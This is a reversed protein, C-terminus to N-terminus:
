WIRIVRELKSVQINCIMSQPFFVFYRIKDYKWLLKQWTIKRLHFHNPQGAPNSGGTPTLFLLFVVTFIRRFGSSQKREMIGFWNIIKHTSDKLNNLEIFIISKNSVYYSVQSYFIKNMIDSLIYELLYYFLLLTIILLVLCYM